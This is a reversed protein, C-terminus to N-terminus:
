KNLGITGVSELGLLLNFNLYVDLYGKFMLIDLSSGKQFLIWGWKLTYHIKECCFFPGPSGERGKDLAQSKGFFFKFLFFLSLVTITM